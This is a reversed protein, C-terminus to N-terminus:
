RLRAMAFGQADIATRRGALSDALLRASGCALAWGGAGHGLNLWVGPAGSADIVPMGDPLTPRAGKWRQVSPLQAAAPFWDSLLRYLTDLTRADFVGARGGLETAGAIRIRQGVRTISVDHRADLIASRPGTDPHGEHHRLPATLSYGWLGALPLRLGLPRLLAPTGLAACVVVADFRERTSDFTLPRTPVEDPNLPVMGSDARPPADPPTHVHEIEPQAGAAISRVETDFMFRVGRRQAQVRLLHVFERCNGAEDEHLQIGAHLPTEVSLGPEITRCKGADILSFRIGTEALMSLGPRAAAVDKDTRLLVLTGTSREYDLREDRTLAHLRERSYLALKLLQARNAACTQPLCAHWWRWLWRLTAFDLRASASAPSNRLLLQRLWLARRAPNTWPSGRGPSILGAHAFSAEGAVSGRREFVIVEHGDRALEWASTVGVVGAGIVAVRM